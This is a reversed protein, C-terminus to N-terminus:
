RDAHQKRFLQSTKELSNEMCLLDNKANNVKHRKNELEMRLNQRRLELENFKIEDEKTFKELMIMDDFGRSVEEDWALLADQDWKATSKLKELKANVSNIDTQFM